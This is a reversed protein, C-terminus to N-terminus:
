VNKQERYVGRGFKLIFRKIEDQLNTIKERVFVIDQIVEPNTTRLSFDYFFNDIEEINEFIEKM